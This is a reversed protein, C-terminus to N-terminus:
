LSLGRLEAQNKAKKGRRVALYCTGIRGEFAELILSQQGNEGDDSENLGKGRVGPNRFCSLM